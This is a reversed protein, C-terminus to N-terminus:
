GLAAADYLYLAFLVFGSTIIIDRFTVNQLCNKNEGQCFDFRTNFHNFLRAGFGAPRLAGVFRWRLANQPFSSVGRLPRHREAYAPLSCACCTAVLRLM